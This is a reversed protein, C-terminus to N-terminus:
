LFDNKIGAKIKVSFEHILIGCLDAFTVDVYRSTM